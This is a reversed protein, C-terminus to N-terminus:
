YGVGPLNPMTMGPPPIMEQPAPKVEGRERMAEVEALTPLNISGDKEVIVPVREGQENIFSVQLDERWKVPDGDKDVLRGNKVGVPPFLEPAVAKLSPDGREYSIRFQRTQEAWYIEAQEHWGVYPVLLEEEGSLLGQAENKSLLGPSGYGMVDLPLEEMGEMQRVLRGILGNAEAEGADTEFRPRLWKWSRLYSRLSEHANEAVDGWTLYSLPNKREKKGERLYYEDPEHELAAHYYHRFMGFASAMQAPNHGRDHEELIRYFQEFQPSFRTEDEFFAKLISHNGSEAFGVNTEAGRFHIKPNFKM